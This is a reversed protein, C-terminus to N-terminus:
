TFHHQRLRSNVHSIKPSIERRAMARSTERSVIERSNVDMSDRFIVMSGMGLHWHLMSGPWIVRKLFSVHGAVPNQM